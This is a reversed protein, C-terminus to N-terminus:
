RPVLCRDERECVKILDDDAASELGQDAVTAVDHGADSLLRRGREGLNEDLKILV